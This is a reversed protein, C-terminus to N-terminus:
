DTMVQWTGVLYLVGFPDSEHMIRGRVRAPRPAPRDQGPGTGVTSQGSAAAGALVQLAERGECQLEAALRPDLELLREVDGTAVANRIRDDFDEARPDVYGPAKETRCASGDALVLLAVPAPGRVLGAGLRACVDPTSDRAVSVLRDPHGGAAVLFQRGIALSTPLVAPGPPATGRYGAAPSALDPNVDGTASGAGVVVVRAGAELAHGLLWSAARACAARVHPVPDLAGGVGDLLIPAQPCVAAATLM